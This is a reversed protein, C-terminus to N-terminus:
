GDSWPGNWEIDNGWPNRVRILNHTAEELNLSIAATISYAHGAVLGREALEESDWLIGCAIITPM